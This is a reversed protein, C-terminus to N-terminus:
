QIELKKFSFRFIVPNSDRNLDKVSEILEQGHLSKEVSERENKILGLLDVAPFAFAFYNKDKWFQGYSFVLGPFISFMDDIIKVYRAGGTKKDCIIMEQNNILSGVWFGPNMENMNVKTITKKEIFWNYETESLINLSYKGTQENPDNLTTNFDIADPTNVFYTGPLLKNEAISFITDNGDMFIKWMGNFRFVSTGPSPVYSLSNEPPFNRRPIKNLLHGTGTFFEIAISDMPNQVKGGFKGPSFWVSDSVRYMYRSNDPIFINEILNGNLGFIQPKNIRHGEWNVLVTSNEYPELNKILYGMHDNPGRGGTGISNIFKGSGDFRYLEAPGTNHQTGVLIDNKTFRIWNNQILCEKKTELPIIRYDSVLDSLRVTLTDDPILNLNIVTLGNSDITVPRNVSKESRHCSSLIFVMLVLIIRSKRKM